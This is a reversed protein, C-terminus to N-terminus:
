ALRLGNVRVGSGRRVTGVSDSRFGASKFVRSVRGSDAEPVFVCLGVGMNFTRYMERESIGGESMLLSFIPPPPPLVIDLQLKRDGILRKAKTFSGGTIHALGHVESGRIAELAPKVYISTPTLLAEGLTSGLAEVKDKLSRTKFVRRALTYGNAHLGSSEIGLIADGEEVATGDIVEDSMILGAGMSVLDFGRGSVGKIVDGLIATEGGVIASRFLM